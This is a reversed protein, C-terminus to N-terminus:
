PTFGRQGGRVCWISYATTKDAQRAGQGGSGPSFGVFDVSYASDFGPVGTSTWYGDADVTGTFPHGTPLSPNPNVNSGDYLTLLEDLTPPRWGSRYDTAVGPCVQMASLWETQGTGVVDRVWVLGTERDLVADGALVCKFRESNCGGAASLSRSWSGAEDIPVGSSAPAGPPDLPGGRADAALMAIVALLALLVLVLLLHTIRNQIALM